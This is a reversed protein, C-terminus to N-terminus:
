LMIIKGTESYTSIINDHIFVTPQYEVQAVILNRLQNILALSIFCFDRAENKGKIHSYNASDANEAWLYASTNKLWGKPLVNTPLKSLSIKDTAHAFENRIKKYRHLITMFKDDFLGLRYGLNIKAAFSGLPAGKRFLEDEKQRVKNTMVKQLLKELLAELLSGASIIVGREKENVVKKYFRSIGEFDEINKSM